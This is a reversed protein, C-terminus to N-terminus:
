QQYKNNVSWIRKSSHLKTTCISLRYSFWFSWMCLLRLSYFTSYILNVFLFILVRKWQSTSKMHSQIIRVVWELDEKQSLIFIIRIMYCDTTKGFFFVCGQFSFILHFSNSIRSSFVWLCIAHMISLVSSYLITPNSLVISKHTTYAENSNIFLEFKSKYSVDNSLMLILWVFKALSKSHIVTFISFYYLILWLLANREEWLPHIVNILKSFM